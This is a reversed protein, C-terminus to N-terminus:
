PNLPERGIAHRVRALLEAAEPRAREAGAALVRQIQAKDAMLERYRERPGALFGDLLEFAEPLDSQRYLTVQDPDLGMALWAAAM